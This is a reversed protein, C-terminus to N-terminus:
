DADAGTTPVDAPLPWPGASAPIPVIRPASFDHAAPVFDHAARDPHTTGQMTAPEHHVGPTTRTPPAELSGTDHAVTHRFAPDRSAIEGPTSDEKAAGMDARLLRQVARNGITRQLHLIWSAEDGLGFHARSSRASPIQQTLKPKQLIIRM